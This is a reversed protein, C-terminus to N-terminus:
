SSDHGELVNCLQRKQCFMADHEHQGVPYRPEESGCYSCRLLRFDLHKIGNIDFANHGCWPPAWTLAWVAQPSDTPLVSNHLEEAHPPLMASCQDYEFPLFPHAILRRSSLM